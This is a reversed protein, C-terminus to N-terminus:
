PNSPSPSRYAQEPHNPIDPFRRELLGDKVMPSLHRDSLNQPQRNLLGALWAGTRWQDSCLQGIVQRLKEKRPRTGLSALAQHLAPDLDLIEGATVTSPAAGFEGRDSVLGGRDAPLEGRDPGLEGRDALREGRDLVLKGQDPRDDAWLGPGLTYYSQSGAPHLELLERDRLRRLIQSAALTDLGM